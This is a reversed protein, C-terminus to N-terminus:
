LCIYLMTYSIEWVKLYDLCQKSSQTSFTLHERGRSILGLGRVQAEKKPLAVKGRGLGRLKQSKGGQAQGLRSPHVQDVM